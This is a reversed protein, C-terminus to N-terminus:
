LKKPSLSCRLAPAIKPSSKTAPAPKHMQTNPSKRSKNPLPRPPPQRSASGHMRGRPARQPLCLAAVRGQSARNNQADGNRNQTQASRRDRAIQNSHSPIRRRTPQRRVSCRPRSRPKTTKIRNLAAAVPPSKEAASFRWEECRFDENRTGGLSRKMTGCPM